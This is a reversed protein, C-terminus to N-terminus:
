NVQSLKETFGLIFVSALLNGHLEHFKTPRRSISFSKWSRWELDLSSHTIPLIGILSLLLSISRYVAGPILNKLLLLFGAEYTVSLPSLFFFPKSVFLTGKSFISHSWHLNDTVCKCFALFMLASRQVPSFQLLWLAIILWLTWTSTPWKRKCWLFRWALIAPLVVHFLNRINAVRRKFHSLTTFRDCNALCSFGARSEFFILFIVPDKFWWM